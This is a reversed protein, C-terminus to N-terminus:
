GLKLEEKLKKWADSAALDLGGLQFGTNELRDVLEAVAAVDFPVPAGVEADGTLEVRRHWIYPRVMKGSGRAMRKPEGRMHYHKLDHKALAKLAKFVRARRAVDPGVALSAPWLAEALELTTMTAEDPLADLLAKARRAVEPYLDEWHVEPACLAKLTLFAERDM